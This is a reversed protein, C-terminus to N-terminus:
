TPPAMRHSLTANFLVSALTLEYGNLPRFVGERWDLGSRKDCDSGFFPKYQPTYRDTLIWPKVGSRHLAQELFQWIDRGQQRLTTTVTLM